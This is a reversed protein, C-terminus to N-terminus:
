FFNVDYTAIMVRLASLTLPKWQQLLNMPDHYWTPIGWPFDLMCCEKNVMNYELAYIRSHVCSLRAPAYVVTLNTEDNNGVPIMEQDVTNCEYILTAVRVTLPLLSSLGVSTPIFSNSGVDTLREDNSGGPIIRQEITDRCEYGAHNIEEERCGVRTIVCTRCM